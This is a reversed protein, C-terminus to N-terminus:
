LCSYLNYKQVKGLDTSGLDTSGLDDDVEDDDVQGDDIQNVTEVEVENSIM